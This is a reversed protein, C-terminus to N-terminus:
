RGLLKGPYWRNAPQQPIACNGNICDRQSSMLHNAGTIGYQIDATITPVSHIPAVTITHETEPLEETFKTKWEDATLAITNLGILAQSLNRAASEQTDEPYRGKRLSFPNSTTVERVVNGHRTQSVVVGSSNPAETQGVKRNVPLYKKVMEVFQTPTMTPSLAGEYVYKKGSIIVVWPITDRKRKLISAWPETVPVNNQDIIRWQPNGNVNATNADLWKTSTAGYMVNFQPQTVRNGSENIITVYLGNTDVSADDLKPDVPDVPDDPKPEVDPKVNGVKVKFDKRTVENDKVGIAIFKYYGPKLGSVPLLFSRGDKLMESPFPEIGSLGIYIVSKADTKPAFSVYHGSAIIEPQIDLTPPEALSIASMSLAVCIAGLWKM